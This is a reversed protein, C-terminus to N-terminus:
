ARPSPLTYCLVDVARGRLSAGHRLRGNEHFGLRSLLARSRENEPLCYARLQRLNAHSFAADILAQVAETAYGQGRYAELLSYGLEGNEHTGEAIRLSVWGITEAEGVREILWEYRGPGSLEARRRNSAVLGVFQNREMSPLDQYTRLEPTQMLTWLREANEAAVPVLRLRDTLISKDTSTM